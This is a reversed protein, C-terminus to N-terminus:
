VLQNDHNLTDSNNITVKSFISPKGPPVTTFARGALALSVLSAPKIVPNSFGRSYSIAVWELIRAQFIGHVSFDPPSYDLEQPGLSDTVGSRFVCIPFYVIPNRKIFGIFRKKKKAKHM